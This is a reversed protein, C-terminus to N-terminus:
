VVYSIVCYCVEWAQACVSMDVCTALLCPHWGGGWGTESSMGTFAAPFPLPALFVVVSVTGPHCPEAGQSYLWRQYRWDGGKLPFFSTFLLQFSRLFFNGLRIQKGQYNEESHQFGNLKCHLPRHKNQIAPCLGTSDWNCDFAGTCMAKQIIVAWLWGWCLPHSTVTYYPHQCNRQTTITMLLQMPRTMDTGKSGDRLVIESVASRLFQILFLWCCCFQLCFWVCVFCFVLLFFLPFTSLFICYNQAHVLLIQMCHCKVSRTRCICFFAPWSCLHSTELKKPTMSSNKIMEDFAASSNGRSGSGERINVFGM